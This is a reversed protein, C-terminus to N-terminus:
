WLPTGRAREAPPATDPSRPSGRKGSTHRATPVAHHAWPNGEWATAMAASGARHAGGAGGSLFSPRVRLVAAMVRSAHGLPTRTTIIVTEAENVRLRVCSGGEGYYSENSIFM